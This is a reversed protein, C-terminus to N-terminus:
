SFIYEHSFSVRYIRFFINKPKGYVLTSECNDLVSQDREDECQLLERNGLIKELEEIEDRLGQIDNM